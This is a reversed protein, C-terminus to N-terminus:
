QFHVSSQLASFVNRDTKYNDVHPENEQSTSQEEPAAAKDRRQAWKYLAWLEDEMWQTSTSLKAARKGIMVYFDNKEAEKRNKIENETKELSDAM